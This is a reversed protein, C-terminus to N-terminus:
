ESSTQMVLFNDIYQFKKSEHGQPFYVPKLDTGELSLFDLETHFQKELPCYLFICVNEPFGTSQLGPAEKALFYSPM